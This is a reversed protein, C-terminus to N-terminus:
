ISKLETLAATAQAMKSSVEPESGDDSIVAALSTVTCLKQGKVKTVHVSGLM